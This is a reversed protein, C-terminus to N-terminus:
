CLCLWHGDCNADVYKHSAFRGHTKRVFFEENPFNGRQAEPSRWERDHEERMMM